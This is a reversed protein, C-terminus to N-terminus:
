RGNFKQSIAGANSVLHKIANGSEMSVPAKQVANTKPLNQQIYKVYEGLPKCYLADMDKSPISIGFAKELAMVLKVQDLSDCGLDYEVVTKASVAPLLSNKASESFVKRWFTKKVTDFVKQETESYQM